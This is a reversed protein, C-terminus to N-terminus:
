SNLLRLMGAGIDTVVAAVALGPEGPPCQSVAPACNIIVLLAGTVMRRM